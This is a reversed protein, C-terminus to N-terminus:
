QRGPLGITKRRKRHAYKSFKNPFDPRLLYPLVSSEFGTLLKARVDDLDVDAVGLRELRSEFPEAAGELRVTVHLKLHVLNSYGYPSSEDRVEVEVGPGAAYSAHLRDAGWAAKM